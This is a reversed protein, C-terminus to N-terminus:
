EFFEAAGDRDKREVTKVKTRASPTLGLEAACKLLMAVASRQQAVWPASVEFGSKPATAVRGLKQVLETAAVMESYSLAYAELVRLDGETLVRSATLLPLVRAYEARAVEPLWAPAERAGEVAPLDPEDRNVARKGPNGRVLKLKTPTPKPTPM